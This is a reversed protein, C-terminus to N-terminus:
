VNSDHRTRWYILCKQLSDTGCWSAQSACPFCRALPHIQKKLLPGNAIRLAGRCLTLMEVIVWQLFRGFTDSASKGCRHPFFFSWTRVDCIKWFCISEFFGRRAMADDFAPKQGPGSGRLANHGATMHVADLPRVCPQVSWAQKRSSLEQWSPATWM